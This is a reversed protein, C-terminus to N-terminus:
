TPDPPPRHDLNDHPSAVPSRDPAPDPLNDLIDFHPTLDPLRLIFLIFADVCILRVTGTRALARAHAQALATITRADLFTVARLDVLLHPRDTDTLAELAESLPTVTAVDLEGSLTVLVHPGHPRASLM